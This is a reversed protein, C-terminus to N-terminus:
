AYRNINYYLCKASKQEISYNSSNSAPRCSLPPGKKTLDSYILTSIIVSLLSVLDVATIRETLPISQYVIMGAIGLIVIGIVLLLLLSM